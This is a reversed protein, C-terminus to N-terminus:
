AIPLHHSQGGIERMPVTTRDLLVGTWAVAFSPRRIHTRFDSQQGAVHGDLASRVTDTRPGASMDHYM